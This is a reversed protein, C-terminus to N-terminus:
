TYGYLSAYGLELIRSTMDSSISSPSAAYLAFARAPSNHERAFSLGRCIVQNSNNKKGHVNFQWMIKLDFHFYPWQECVCCVPKHNLNVTNYLVIVRAFTRINCHCSQSCKKIRLQWSVLFSVYAFTEPFSM